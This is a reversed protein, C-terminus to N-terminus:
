GYFSSGARSLVLPVGDGRITGLQRGTRLSVIAYRRYLNATTVFARPGVVQVDDVM